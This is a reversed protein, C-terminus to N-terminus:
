RMLVMKRSIAEKGARLRYFYIGSAIMNGRADRGRWEVEYRGREKEGDVLCVVRKGTVDFVELVVPGAHPLYYSITTVPNFPNPHNQYLTLPLAPTRVPDTEFLYHREGNELYEVRYRYTCGPEVDRDWYTFTLGDRDIGSGELEEYDEGVDEARLISFVVGERAEKVNWTIEIWSRRYAASFCELWTAIWQDPRLLAFGSGNGHVDSASLKYYYEADIYWETDVFVTDVTETLQNEPAPTFVSSMGRHLSYHSLDPEGNPSWSICLAGAVQRGVLGLPVAPALNDVSYGSDPCSICSYFYSSEATICYVSWPIDQSNISDALTPVEVFYMPIGSAPVEAVQEWGPLNLYRESLSSGCGTLPNAEREVRLKDTSPGHESHLLLQSYSRRFIKYREVPFDSVPDDFYGGQFEISVMGGQDNGVDTISLIKPGCSCLAKQKRNNGEKGETVQDRDDVSIEILNYNFVDPSTALVVETSSEDPSLSGYDFEALLHEDNSGNHDTMLYVSIHFNGSPITGNNLVDFIVEFSTCNMLLFDPQIAFETITLDPMSWGFEVTDERVRFGNRDWINNAWLIYPFGESLPNGLLLAVTTEDGQLVADTIPISVTTDARGYVGYNNINEASSELLRNNFTAEVQTANIASAEVLRPLEHGKPPYLNVYLNTFKICPEKPYDELCNAFQYAPEPVVGPHPIIVFMMPELSTIILFHHALWVWDWQCNTMCIIFGDKLNGQVVSNGPNITLTGPFIGFEPYSVAFEACKLGNEGPLAWVWMEIPYFACGTPSQIYNEARNEDAYLGIYGIPPLQSSAASAVLLIIIIILFKQRM